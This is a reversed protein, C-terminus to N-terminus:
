EKLCNYALMIDSYIVYVHYTEEKTCQIMVNCRIGQGDVCTMTFYTGNNDDPKVEGVTIISIHQTEKSYIDITTKNMVILISCPNEKSWDGYTKTTENYQSIMSTQTRLKFADQSYVSVGILLAFILTLLKKM